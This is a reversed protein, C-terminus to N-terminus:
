RPVPYVSESALRYAGYALCARVDEASIHPYWALLEEVSAGNALDGLILEVSIRTGRIVPKGVLVRADMGIRALLSRDIASDADDAPAMYRVAPEAARGVHPRVMVDLDAEDIVHTTGIKRARLHGARIWRRITEPSKGLREAVEPVTLPMDTTYLVKGSSPGERVAPDPTDDGGM